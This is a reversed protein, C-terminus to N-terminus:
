ISESLLAWSGGLAMQRHAIISSKHTKAHPRLRVGTSAVADAMRRLNREFGDLDIILAPTDVESLAMGPHAPPETAM